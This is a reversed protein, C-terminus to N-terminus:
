FKLGELAGKPFVIKPKDAAKQTQAPAPKATQNLPSASFKNMISANAQDIIEDIMNLKSGVAKLRQRAAAAESTDGKAKKALAASEAKLADSQKTLHTLEGATIGQSKSSGKKSGSSGEREFNIRDRELRAQAKAAEVGYRGSQKVGELALARADKEANTGRTLIANNEDTILKLNAKHEALAVARQAALEQANKNIEADLLYKGLQNSRASEARAADRNGKAAGAVLAGLLGAM